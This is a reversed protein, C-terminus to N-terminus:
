LGRTAPTCNTHAHDLGVVAHDEGNECADVQGIVAHLAALSSKCYPWHHRATDGGAAGWAHPGRRSEGRRAGGTQQLRSLLLEEALM